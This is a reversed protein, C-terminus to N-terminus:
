NLIISSKELSDFSRKYQIIGRAELSKLAERVSRISINLEGSMDKQSYNLKGGSLNIYFLVKIECPSLTRIHEITLM